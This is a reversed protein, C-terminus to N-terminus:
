DRRPLTVACGRRKSRASPQGLAPLPCPLRQWVSRHRGLRGNVEEGVLDHDVRHRIAWRVLPTEDGGENLLLLHSTQRRRPHAALVFGLEAQRRLGWASRLASPQHSRSGEQGSTGGTGVTAWGGGRSNRSCCDMAMHSNQPDQAAGGARLATSPPKWKWGPMGCRRRGWASSDEPEQPQGRGAGCTELSTWAMLIPQIM